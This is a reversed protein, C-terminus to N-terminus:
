HESRHRVEAPETRTIPVIKRPNTRRRVILDHYNEVSTVLGQKGKYTSVWKRFCAEGDFIHTAECELWVRGAERPVEVVHLLADKPELGGIKRDVILLKTLKGCM